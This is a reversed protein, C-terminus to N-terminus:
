SRILAMSSFVIKEFFFDSAFLINLTKLLNLSNSLQFLFLVKGRGWPADRADQWGPQARHHLSRDSALHILPPPSAGTSGPHGFPEGSARV